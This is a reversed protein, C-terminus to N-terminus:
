EFLRTSLLVAAQDRCVADSDARKCTVLWEFIESGQHARMQIRWAHRPVALVVRSLVYMLARRVMADEHFRLSLVVQIGVASMSLVDLTNRACEIFVAVSRLLETLVSFDRGVLDLGPTVKDFHALLPYFFRSAVSGFPAVGEVGDGCAEARAQVDERRTFRKTVKGCPFRLPLLLENRNRVNSKNSNRAAASDSEALPVIQALERAADQLISLTQMRHQLGYNDAYFQRVLYDVVPAVTVNVGRSHSSNGQEKKINRVTCVALAVLAGHRKSEFDDLAYKNEMGLLTAALPLCHRPLDHDRRRIIDELLNFVTEQADFSSYGTAGSDDERLSIELLDRCDRIYVPDKYKSAKSRGSPTEDSDDLGGYPVLSDDSDDSERDFYGDSGSQMVPDSDYYSAEGDSNEMEDNSYTEAGFAFVEDPDQSHNGAQPPAREPSIPSLPSQFADANTHASESIQTEGNQKRESPSKEDRSSAPDIDCYVSEDDDTCDDSDMSNDLMDAFVIPNEPDLISSFCHAVRMGLQRVRLVSHELHAQVGGLLTNLLNVSPVEDTSSPVFDCASLMEKPIKKLLRLLLLTVHEHQPFDSGLIFESDSWVGALRMAVELYLGDRGHWGPEGRTETDSASKCMQRLASFLIKTVLTPDGVSVFVHNLLLKRTFLSYLTRSRAFLLVTKRVAAMSLASSGQAVHEGGKEDDSDPGLPENARGGLMLIIQVLLKECADIHLCSILADHNQSVIADPGILMKKKFWHLVATVWCRAVTEAYGRKILFGVVTACGNWLLESSSQQELLNFVCGRVIQVCMKEYFQDACLWRPLLAGVHAAVLDPVSFIDRCYSETTIFVPADDFRANECDIHIARSLLIGCMSSDQKSKKGPEQTTLLCPKILDAAKLARQVAERSTLRCTKDVDENDSQRRWKRLCAVIGDLVLSIPFNGKGDVELPRFARDFYTRTEDASFCGIWDRLVETLLVDAAYRYVPKAMALASGERNTGDVPLREVGGGRSSEGRRSPDRRLLSGLDEYLHGLLEKARGADDNRLARLAAIRAHVRSVSAGSAM